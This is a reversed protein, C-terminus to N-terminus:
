FGRIKPDGIRLGGSFALGGVKNGGVRLEGSFEQFGRFGRIYFSDKATV